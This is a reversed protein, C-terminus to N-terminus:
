FYAAGEAESGALKQLVRYHEFSNYDYACSPLGAHAAALPSM